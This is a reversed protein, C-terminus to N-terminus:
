TPTGEAGFALARASPSLRMRVARPPPLQNLGRAAAIAEDWAGQLLLKCIKLTSHLYGVPLSVPSHRYMFLMRNRYNFYNAFASARRSVSGSGIAAGGQHYVLADPCLRIPLRGRRHAWDVEEYYLFYDEKMLGASEIFARSAILNAGSIFDLTEPEPMAAEDPLRGQNVNRCIGTWRGVRGGDSQIYNPPESYLTRGGMLSFAGGEVAARAYASAADPAAVCDPNLIWFLGITGDSLLARLCQNAGGAFGRNISSRLLLFRPIRSVSLPTEGIAHDALDCSRAEAWRRIAMVTDDSSDNDCIAVRLDAHDSALLSDLCEAIYDSANFTVVAVGIAPM